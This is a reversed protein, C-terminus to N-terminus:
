GTPFPQSWLWLRPSFWPASSLGFCFARFLYPKGFAMFRLYKCSEPHILVQLYADKLDLSLGDLRGSAGFSSGSSDGDQISDQPHLPESCLPRYCTKVVRLNGVGHVCLQLLRSFSSLVGRSSLIVEELAKGKIASLSYISIPIPEKSLPPLSLFPILCGVRLVEVVWPEAGTGGLRGTSPCVAVSRLPVPIHSKSRFVGTPYQFPVPIHSKSGFVGTPNQLLLCM